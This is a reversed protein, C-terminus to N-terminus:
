RGACINELEEASCAGPPTPVRDDLIGPWQLSVCEHMAEHVITSALVDVFDKDNCLHWNFKYTRSFLGPEPECRRGDYGNLTNRSAPVRRIPAWEDEGAVTMKLEDRGGLFQCIDCGGPCKKIAAVCRSEPRARHHEDCSAIRRAM